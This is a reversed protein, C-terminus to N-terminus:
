TMESKLLIKELILGVIVNNWNLLKANNNEWAVMNETAEGFKCGYFCFFFDEIINCISALFIDFPECLQCDLKKNM